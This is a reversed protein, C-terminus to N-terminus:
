GEKCLNVTCAFFLVYYRPPRTFALTDFRHNQISSPDGRGERRGEETGEERRRGTERKGSIFGDSATVAVLIYPMIHQRTPPRSVYMSVCIGRQRTRTRLAYIKELSSVCHSSSFGAGHNFYTFIPLTELRSNTNVYTTFNFIFM